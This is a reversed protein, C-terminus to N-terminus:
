QKHAAGQADGRSLWFYRVGLLQLGIAAFWFYAGVRLDIYLCCGGGENALMGQWNFVFTDLALVGAVLAAPLALRRKNLLVAVWSVLLAPNAFWSVQLQLAALWGIALVQYGLWGNPDPNPDSTSVLVETMLSPLYCALSIAVIRLNPIRRMAGARIVNM